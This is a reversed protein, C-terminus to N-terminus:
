KGNLFPVAQALSDRWVSQLRTLTDAASRTTEEAIEFNHKAVRDFMDKQFAVQREILKQTVEIGQNWVDLHNRTINDCQNTNM